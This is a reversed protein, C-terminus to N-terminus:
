DRPCTVYGGGVRGNDNNYDEHNDEEVSVETTTTYEKPGGDIGVGGRDNDRIRRVRWINRTRQRRRRQRQQTRPVTKSQQCRWRRQWYWSGTFAGAGGDDSINVRVRQIEQKRLQRRRRRRRFRASMKRQQLSRWPQWNSLGTMAICYGRDNDWFILDKLCM